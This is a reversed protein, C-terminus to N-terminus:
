DAGGLIAERLNAGSLDAGSLDAYVLRADCLDAGSLDIEVEDNSEKWSNWQGVSDKLRALHERNAM